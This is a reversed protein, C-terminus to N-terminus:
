ARRCEGARDAFAPQALQGDLSGVASFGEGGVEGFDEAFGAEAGGGLAEAEAGLWAGV